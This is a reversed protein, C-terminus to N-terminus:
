SNCSVMISRYVHTYSFHLTKLSMICSFHLTRCVILCTEFSFFICNCGIKNSCAKPTVCRAISDNIVRALNLDIFRSTSIALLSCAVCDDLPELNWRGGGNPAEL